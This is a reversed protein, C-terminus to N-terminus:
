GVFASPQTNIEAGILYEDISRPTLQGQALEFQQAKEDLMGGPNVTAFLQKIQNPATVGEDLRARDVNVDPAEALLHLAVVGIGLQNECHAADAIAEIWLRKSLNGVERRAAATSA